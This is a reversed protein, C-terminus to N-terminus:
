EGIPQYTESTGAITPMNPQMDMPNPPPQEGAMVAGMAPAGPQPQGPPAAMQQQALSQQGLLMLLNPDVTQLQTIHEQIHMLTRQVLGPDKRSEPNALVCRHEMIHLKHDDTAISMVDGGDRMTENEARILLLESQQGEILPQINGTNVVTIYEDPTKIMGAQLLQNAMDVKGATTKSIASAADVVVRNVQSLDDGTFEKMFPRNFKGSIMAIRPVQAYDRLVSITSSGVDEILINYSQAMGSNFQIAQAAVLALAAGSKLSSQPDGRAVQNVGSLTEMLREIQQIYNFVEPPTSTLNLPEVKGLKEDVELVNLGGALQQVSIDAGKPIKINQVGFTIQNTLVSSHLSDSAEQLPLLDFVPSYGFPGGIFESGAIRSLPIQRYPLPGDFLVIDKDLFIVHRGNPLVDSKDHYFEFVAVDENGITDAKLTYHNFKNDPQELALIKDEFEPYKQVLDYRNEFLRVIKWQGESYSKATDRIIDLPVHNKYVIDGNYRVAGTEPDVGYEDGSAADWRWSVYGEGFVLAYEVATKLYSELRKERLYYDLIGTALIAQSLSKYDSNIARADMAPRQATTMVLLHTILNRYHNINIKTLEGQDGTARLSKMDFMTSFDSSIGFYARYSKRLLTYYGSQEIENYFEEVVSVLEGGIEDTPLTAFYKGDM